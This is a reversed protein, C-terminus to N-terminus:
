FEDQFTQETPFGVGTAQPPFGEQLAPEEQCSKAFNLILLRKRMKRMGRMGRMGRMKRMNRM